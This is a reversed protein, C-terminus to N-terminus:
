RITCVMVFKARSAKNVTFNLYLDMASHQWVVLIVMVMMM